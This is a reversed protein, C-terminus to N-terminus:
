QKVAIQKCNCSYFSVLDAIYYQLNSKEFSMVITDYELYNHEHDLNSSFIRWRNGISDFLPDHVGIQVQYEPANNAISQFRTFTFEGDFNEFRLSDSYENADDSVHVINMDYLFNGLTDYVKYQGSIIEWRTPGPDTQVPVKDKKCALLISAAVMTVVLGYFVGVRLKM